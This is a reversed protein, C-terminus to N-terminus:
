EEGFLDISNGDELTVIAKKFGNVKGVYRGVRKKKAKTNSVNVKKVKVDFLNEVANKIEFKNVGKAVKFTYANNDNMLNMSQETIVPAIIVDRFDKM